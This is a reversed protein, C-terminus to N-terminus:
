LTGDRLWGLADQARGSATVALNAQPPRDEGKLPIGKAWQSLRKHAMDVTQSLTESRVGQLNSLCEAAIQATTFVIIRPFPATLPLIHAPLMDSVLESAKEINQDMPLPAYVYVNSGTTILNLAAGGVAPSVSFSSSSVAVAYYTTSGTLPGPLSGGAVEDAEFYVPDDTQFGHENLVIVDNDIDVEHVLRGPNPVSGRPLGVAYVDSPECYRLM